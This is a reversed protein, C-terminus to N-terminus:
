EKKLIDKIITDVISDKKLSINELEKLWNNTKVKIAKKEKEASKEFKNIIDQRIVILKNDIEKLKEECLNKFEKIKTRKEQLTTKIIEATQKETDKIKQLTAKFM